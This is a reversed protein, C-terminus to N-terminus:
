HPYAALGDTEPDGSSRHRCLPPRCVRPYWSRSPVTVSDGHCQCYAAQRQQAGAPHRRGERGPGAASRKLESCCSQRRSQSQSRSRLIKHGAPGYRVTVALALATEARPAQAKQLGDQSPSLSVSVPLVLGARGASRLSDSDRAAGGAGPSARSEAAAGPRPRAKSESRSLRM